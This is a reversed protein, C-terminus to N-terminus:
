NPKHYTNVETPAPVKESNGFNGINTENSFYVAIAMVALLALLIAWIWWRSAKVPETESYYEAMLASNSEKDGVILTHTSEPHIIREAHVPSLFVEPFHIQKFVISGEVDVYFKGTYPIEMESYSDLNNLKSCYNELSGAAEENSVGSQISVYKIFDDTAKEVPSFSIYPLPPHLQKEGLVFSATRYGISLSGVGPLPCTKNEFLYTAILEEM